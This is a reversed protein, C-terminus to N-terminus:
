CQQGVWIRGWQLNRSTLPSSMPAITAPETRSTLTLTVPPSWLKELRLQADAAAVQWCLMYYCLTPRIRRNPITMMQTIRHLKHQEEQPLQLVLGRM